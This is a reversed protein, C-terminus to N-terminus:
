DGTRETREYYAMLERESDSGPAPQYLLPVTARKNKWDALIGAAADPYGAIQLANVKEFLEHDAKTYTKM